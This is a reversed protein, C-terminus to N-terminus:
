FKGSNSKKWEARLPITELTDRDEAASLDHEIYRGPDIFEIPAPDGTEISKLLALIQRKRETM